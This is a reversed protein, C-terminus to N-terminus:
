QPRVSSAHEAVVHRAYAPDLRLGYKLNVLGMFYMGTQMLYFLNEGSMEFIKLPRGLADGHIIEHRQADWGKLKEKDFEYGTMPSWKAPPQCRAHLRDVKVLLSDRELRELRDKLKSDLIERYSSKSIELLHVRTDKLDEEWDKPAHLATVRCYDFALGELVSHAFVLAAADLSASTQASVFESSKSSFDTKSVTRAFGVPDTLLKMYAPDSTLRDYLEEASAKLKSASIGLGGRLNDWFSHVVAWLQWGRLFTETFLKEADTM